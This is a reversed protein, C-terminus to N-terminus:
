AWPNGPEQHPRAREHRCRGRRSCSRLARSSMSATSSWGPWWLPYDWVAGSREEAVYEVLPSAEEVAVDRMWGPLPGGDLMDAIEMLRGAPGRFDEGADLRYDAFADEAGGYDINIAAWCSGSRNRAPTRWVCVRAARQDRLARRPPPWARAMARTTARPTATPCPCHSPASWSESYAELRHYLGALAARSDDDMEGDDLVAGIQTAVASFCEATAADDPYVASM